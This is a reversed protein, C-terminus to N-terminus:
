LNIPGYIDFSVSVFYYFTIFVYMKVNSLGLIENVNTIDSKSATATLAM